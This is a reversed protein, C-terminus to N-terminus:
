DEKWEVVDVDWCDKWSVTWERNLDTDWLEVLENDNDRIQIIGFGEYTGPLGPVKEGLNLNRTDVPKKNEDIFTYVKFRCAYSKGPEIDKIQM